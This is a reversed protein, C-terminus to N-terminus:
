QVPDPSSVVARGENRGQEARVFDQWVWVDDENSQVKPVNSVAGCCLALDFPARAHMATSLVPEFHFHDQGDQSIDTNISTSGSHLSM